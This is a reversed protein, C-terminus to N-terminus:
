WRDCHKRPLRRGRRLGSTVDSGVGGSDSQTRGVLQARRNAPTGRRIPKVHRYASPEPRRRTPASGGGGHSTCTDLYGSADCAKGDEVSQSRSPCAYRADAPPADCNRRVDPGGTDFDRREYMKVGAMNDSDNMLTAILPRFDPTIRDADKWPLHPRYWAFDQGPAFLSNYGGRDVSEKIALLQEHTLAASPHFRKDRFGIAFGANDVGQVYPFDADSQPVDPFSAPPGEALKIQLSPQDFWIANNARVLWRVYQARTIPGSPDFHGATQDFTGLAGLDEIFQRESISAIDDFSVSQSPAGTAAGSAAGTDAATGSRGHACASVVIVTLLIIARKM